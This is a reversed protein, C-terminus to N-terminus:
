KIRYTVAFLQQFIGANGDFRDIQRLNEATDIAELIGVSGNFLFEAGDFFIDLGATDRGICHKFNCLEANNDIPIDPIVVKGTRRNL